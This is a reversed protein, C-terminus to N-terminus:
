GLADPHGRSDRQISGEVADTSRRVGRHCRADMSTTVAVGPGGHLSSKILIHSFQCVGGTGLEGDQSIHAPRVNAFM